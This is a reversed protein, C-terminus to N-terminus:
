AHELSRELEARPQGAAAQVLGLWAPLCRSRLDYRARVTERVARRLGAHRGPAALAEAVAGALGDVDFFNVLVGNRGDEIVEEVPPTRSGIVLAGASMADLVSWSLVFPYTLYVHAASVQLVRLLAAYPLRGVFHVRSLDLRHGVERLMFEKWTGGGAPGPGYSAGDGGVTVVHAKPRDKLIGPLARMFVHFGRHPELNRAVYTVVEDGPRLVVGPGRLHLVANPDPRAVGTDVGEHVVTIKRRLADPFRSAQWRTPAVGVDADLLALTM